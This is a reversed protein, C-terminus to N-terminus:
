KQLPPHVAFRSIQGDPLDSQDPQPIKTKLGRARNMSKSRSAVPVPKKADITAHPKVTTHGRPVKPTRPIVM